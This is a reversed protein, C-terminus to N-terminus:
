PSISVVAIIFPGSFDLQELNRDPPWLRFSWEQMEYETLSTTKLYHYRATVGVSFAKTMRLQYMGGVKFGLDTSSAKSSDEFAQEGYVSSTSVVHIDSKSFGLLIDAEISFVGSAIPFHYSGGITPAILVAHWDAEATTYTDLPGLRGPPDKFTNDVATRHYEIGITGSFSPAVPIALKCFFATGHDPTDPL